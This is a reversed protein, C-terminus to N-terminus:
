KETEVNTIQFDIVFRYFINRGGIGSIQAIM